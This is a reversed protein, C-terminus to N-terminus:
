RGEGYAALMERVRAQYMRCGEGNSRVTWGRRRFDRALSNVLASESMYGTANLLGRAIAGLSEGAEYREHAEYITDLDVMRGRQPDLVYADCWPCAGRGIPEVRVGCGPCDYEPASM